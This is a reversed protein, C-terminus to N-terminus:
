IGTCDELKFRKVNAETFWLAAFFFFVYWYYTSHIDSQFFVVEAWWLKSPGYVSKRCSAIFAKFTGLHSSWEKVRMICDKEWVCAYVEHKLTSFTHGCAFMCTHACAYVCVVKVRVMEHPIHKEREFIRACMCVCYSKSSNLCHSVAHFCWMYFFVWLVVMNSVFLFLIMRSQQTLRSKPFDYCLAMFISVYSYPM